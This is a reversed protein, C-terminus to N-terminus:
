EYRLAEVADLKAARNAPYLGALLSIGTTIAIVEIVLQVTFVSMQFTPYDSLFTQHGIINLGYGAGYGIAVGIIGGFFGLAMGEMTFLLRITGRTAGVAKMVGIERTREYISMMLTNIIGISAVILAIIGFASLGIQIVNFITNIEKLIESPTVTTFGLNDIDQAIRDVIEASAAKVQLVAGPQEDSYLNPNDMYYRAMEIADSKPIAIDKSNVTKQIVGSVTFTYIETETNYANYKGMVINIQKGVADEATEWGFVELYDYSILCERTADEAFYDGSVLKLLKLEYDSGTWASISYKKDSDGPSVYLADVSVYYGVREVGDISLIKQVDEATFARIITESTDSIEHPAENYYFSVDGAFVTLSDTAVSLGFQDVIFQKLGVGLSTMLAILVAGIIIALMTLFTRFKKRWLNYFATKIIDWFRM